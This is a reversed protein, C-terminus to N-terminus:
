KMMARITITFREKLAHHFLHPLKSHTLFVNVERGRCTYYEITCKLICKNTCHVRCAHLLCFLVRWHTLSYGVSLCTYMYYPSIYEDYVTLIVARDTYDVICGPFQGIYLLMMEFLNRYM